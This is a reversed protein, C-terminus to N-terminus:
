SVPDAPDGEEQVSGAEEREEAQRVVEVRVPLCSDLGVLLLLDDFGPPPHRVRIRSGRRQAILQLRVLVDVTDLGARSLVALDCDILPPPDRAVLSRVRECLDVLDAGAV